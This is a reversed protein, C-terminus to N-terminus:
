GGDAKNTSKIFTVSVKPMSKVNLTNEARDIFMGLHKAISDLAGKKDAFKIKKLTDVSDNDKNYSTTVDMRTIAAAVDGPLRHIPILDGNDDFFKRPDLFAIRGFEKLAKDQTIGTRKSRRAQEKEIAALVHTKTLLQRGNDPHKYGARIAAQTANLDILYEDCFRQQKPTLKKKRRAQSVLQNDKTSRPM